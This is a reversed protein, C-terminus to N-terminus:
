GKSDIIVGRADSTRGYTRLRELPEVNRSLDEIQFSLAEVLDVTSQM